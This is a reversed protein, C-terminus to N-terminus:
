KSRSRLIIGEEYAVRAILNFAHLQLRAQFHYRPCWFKSNFFSDKDSVILDPFRPADIPIQVPEVRLMKKLRDVILILEYNAQCSPLLM